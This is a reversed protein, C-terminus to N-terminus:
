PRFPYEQSSLRILDRKGIRDLVDHVDKRYEERLAENGKRKIGYRRLTEDNRGAPPGFFNLGFAFWKSARRSLDQEDHEANMYNRLETLGFGVHMPEDKLIEACAAAWPQFSSQAFNSVMFLGARDLFMHNLVVDIWENEEDAVSLPGELSATKKGMNKGEAIAISEEHTVGMTELERYLLFAHRAEDALISAVTRVARFGPAKSIWRALSPAASAEAYAQISMIRVIPQRYEDPMRPWMDMTVSSPPYPESPLDM